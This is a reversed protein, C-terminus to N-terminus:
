EAYGRVELSGPSNSTELVKEYVFLNELMGAMVGGGIQIHAAVSARAHSLGTAV